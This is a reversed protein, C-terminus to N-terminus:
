MITRYGESNCFLVFIFFSFLFPAFLLPFTLNIRYKEIMVAAAVERVVRGTEISNRDITCDLWVTEHRM